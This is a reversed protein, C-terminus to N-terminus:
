ITRVLAMKNKIEMQKEADMLSLRVPETKVQRELSLRVSILKAKKEGTARHRAYIIM